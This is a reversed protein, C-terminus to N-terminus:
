MGRRTQQVFHDLVLERGRTDEHGLPTHFGFLTVRQRLKVQSRQARGLPPVFVRYRQPFLRELVARYVRTHEESLAVFAAFADRLVDFRRVFEVDFSRTV